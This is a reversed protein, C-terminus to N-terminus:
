LHPLKSLDLCSSCVFKSSRCTSNSRAEWVELIKSFRVLFKSLIMNSHFDLACSRLISSSPHLFCCLYSNISTSGTKLGTLTVLMQIMIRIKWILPNDDSSHLARVLRVWDLSWSYAALLSISFTEDTSFSFSIRMLSKSNRSWWVVCSLLRYKKIGNWSITHHLICWM